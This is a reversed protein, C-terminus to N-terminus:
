LMLRHWPKTLHSMSMSASTTPHTMPFFPSNLAHCMKQMATSDHRRISLRFYSYLSSKKGEPCLFCDGPARLWARSCWMRGQVGAPYGIGRDRGGHGARKPQCPDNKRGFFLPPCCLNQRYNKRRAISGVFLRMENQSGARM